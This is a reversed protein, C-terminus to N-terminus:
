DIKDARYTNGPYGWWWDLGVVKGNNNRIFTTTANYGSWFFKDKSEPFVKLKPNGTMEAFLCNGEKTFTLYYDSGTFSNPRLRYTGTYDNLIATDIKIAKENCILDTLVFTTLDHDTNSFARSNTFVLVGIKNLPDLFCTTHFGYTGGSHFYYETGSMRLIHWGLGISNLLGDFDRVFYKHTLQIAEDISTHILGMNAAAYKLMDNITSKIIGAGGLNKIKINWQAAEVLSSNYPTAYRNMASAPVEVYTDNMGLPELIRKKLLTEYEMGTKECLIYGLLTMALNSYEYLTGPERSLKATNLFGFFQEATNQPDTFNEPDRPLASTHTALHRLTIQKGNYSPVIIGDPMFKQAPDDLSLEGKLVMDALITCTFTKTISGIEWITNGDPVDSKNKDLKGYGFVKTEGHNIIGVVIGIDKKYYDVREKLMKMIDNDRAYYEPVPDSGLDKCSQFLVMASLIILMLKKM